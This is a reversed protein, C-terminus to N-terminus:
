FQVTGNRITRWVSRSFPAAKDDAASPATNLRRHAIGKQARGLPPPQASSQPRLNAEHMQAPKVNLVFHLTALLFHAGDSQNVLADVAELAGYPLEMHEVLMVVPVTSRRQKIEAAIAADGVHALHYDIVVADVPQSTFLRLGDRGNTATM